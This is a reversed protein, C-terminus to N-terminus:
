HLDKKRNELIELAEKLEKDIRVEAKAWNKIARKKNKVRWTFTLLPMGRGVREQWAKEVVERLRPKKLWSNTFRFPKDCPQLKRLELMVLAHDSTGM